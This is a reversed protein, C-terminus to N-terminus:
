TIHLFLLVDNCEALSVAVADRLFYHFLQALSAILQEDRNALNATGGLKKQRTPSARGQESPRGAKFIM